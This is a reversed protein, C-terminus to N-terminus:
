HHRFPAPQHATLLPNQLFSGGPLGPALVRCLTHIQDKTWSNLTWTSHPICFIKFFIKKLLSLSHCCPLFRLPGSLSHTANKRFSPPVSNLRNMIHLPVSRRLLLTRTWPPWLPAGHQGSLLYPTITQDSGTGTARWGVIGQVSPCFAGAQIGPM